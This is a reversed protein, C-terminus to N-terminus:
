GMNTTNLKRYRLKNSNCIEMDDPLVVLEPTSQCMLVYPLSVNHVLELVEGVSSACDTGSVLVAHRIEDTDAKM